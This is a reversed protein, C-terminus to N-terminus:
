TGSDSLDSKRQTLQRHLERAGALPLNAESDVHERLLHTLGALELQEARSLTGQIDKDILEFRRQNLESNWASEDVIRETELVARGFLDVIEDENIGSDLLTVRVARIAALGLDARSSDTRLDQGTDALHIELHKLFQRFWDNATECLDSARSEPPKKVAM